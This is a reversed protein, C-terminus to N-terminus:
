ALRYIRVLPKASVRVRHAPFRAIRELHDLLQTVFALDRNGATSFIEWGAGDHEMLHVPLGDPYVTIFGDRAALEENSAELEHNTQELQDNKAQLQRRSNM